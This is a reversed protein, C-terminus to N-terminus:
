NSTFSELTFVTECKSWANKKKEKEKKKKSMRRMDTNYISSTSETFLTPKYSKENVYLM